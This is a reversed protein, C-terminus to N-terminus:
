ANMVYCLKKNKFNKNKLVFNIIINMKAIVLFAQKMFIVLMNLLKATLVEDRYQDENDQFLEKNVMPTIEKWNKYKGSQVLEDM